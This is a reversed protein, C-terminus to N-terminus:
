KPQIRKVIDAKVLDMDCWCGGTDFDTDTEKQYGRKIANKLDADEDNGYAQHTDTNWPNGDKPVYGRLKKGDWYIIFIVPHEWDGGARCFLAPMGNALIKYGCEEPWDESDIDCNELDFDVKKLDDYVQPTLDRMNYLSFGDDEHNNPHNKMAEEVKAILGVATFPVFHRPM